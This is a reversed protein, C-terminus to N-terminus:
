KRGCLRDVVEKNELDWMKGILVVFLMVLGLALFFGSVFGIWFM